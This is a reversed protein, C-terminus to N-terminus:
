RGKIKKILPIFMGGLSNGIIVLIIFWIADFSFNGALTFYFMDAISHEFGSLIFVPICFVIGAITDRKKYTEVATYMLVGCMFAVMFGGFCGLELKKDTMIIAYNHLKPIANSLLIGFIVVGVANGLLGILLNLFNRRSHDEVLYGIKGTFLYFELMSISLLATSFLVAGVVVSDIISLSIYATGGIAIFMGALFANLFTNLYEKRKM